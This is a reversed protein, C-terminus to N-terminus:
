PQANSICPIGITELPAWIFGLLRWPLMWEATLHRKISWRRFHLQLWRNQHNGPSRLIRKKSVLLREQGTCSDSSQLPKQLM